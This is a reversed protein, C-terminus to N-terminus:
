ILRCLKYSVKQLFWNRIGSLVSVVGSLPKQQKVCKGVCSRSIVKLLALFAETSMGEMESNVTM